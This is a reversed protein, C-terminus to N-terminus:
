PILIIALIGVAFCYFSFLWFKGQSIVTILWHIVLYGSLAASIFGLLLPFLNLTSFEPLKLFQQLGAGFLVPIAMFFSFRAAQVRSVGLLLAASITMGSRSIGPLIAVAQAIGIILATSLIIDKVAQKGSWYTSLLALGTLILTWKVVSTQFAAEITENLFLGVFITPITAAALYLVYHVSEKDGAIFKVALDKLDNFYFLM